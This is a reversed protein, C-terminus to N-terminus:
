SEEEDFFTSLCDYTFVELDYDTFKYINDREPVSNLVRIFLDCYRKYYEDEGLEELKNKENFEPIYNEIINCAHNYQNVFAPSPPTYGKPQDLLYKTESDLLIRTKM